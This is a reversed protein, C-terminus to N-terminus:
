QNKQALLELRLANLAVKSVRNMVDLRQPAFANVQFHKVGDQSALGVFALGVPKTDTAGTPGAIGTTSIAYDSGFRQRAGIAMAEAVEASVAGHLQILEAPVGLQNIKVENAYAVCGGLFHASIGAIQCLRYMVLGGTLSEAVAITKSKEELLRAVAHQLEEDGVGFLLTGLRERIIAEVPAIQSETETEDKGQGFIRLSITADSATIGVEPVHGRKTLDMVKEEVAAEGLGFSNLKREIIVGSRATYKQLLEPLVQKEFMHYMERPVGPLAVVLAPIRGTRPVELWIGPATGVPNAIPRAGEPFFAQVRNRETMKRGIRSFIKEIADYSAQDFVLEVGIIKALAERTLDDQTPGLGGTSIVLDARETAVRFADVNEDLDDALTTHYRVPFGRHQLQRSLWQSNTDLNRGSVLESGISIVEVKMANDLLWSSM